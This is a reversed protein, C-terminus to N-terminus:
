QCSKLYPPLYPCPAMEAGTRPKYGEQDGNYIVEIRAIALSCRTFTASADDSVVTHLMQLIKTSLSATSHSLHSTHNCGVGIHITTKAFVIQSMKLNDASSIEKTQREQRIDLVDKGM